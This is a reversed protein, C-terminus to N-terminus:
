APEERDDSDNEDDEDFDFYNGIFDIIESIFTCYQDENLTNVGSSILCEAMGELGSPTVYGTAECEGYKNTTTLMASIGAEALREGVSPHNLWERVAQLEKLINGDKLGINEEM